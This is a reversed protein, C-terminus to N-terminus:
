KPHGARWTEPNMFGGAWIGLKNVQAHAEDVAYHRKSFREYDVAYGASVMSKGIDHREGKLNISFCQAVTRGYIDKDKRECKLRVQPKFFSELYRKATKGCHWGLAPQMDVNTKADRACRQDLEPADIGWLRVIEGGKLVLTDGDQVYALIDDRTVYTAIGATSVLMGAAVGAIVNNRLTNM